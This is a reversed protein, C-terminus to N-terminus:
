GNFTLRKWTAADVIGSEDLKLRKQAAKVKVETQDDYSGTEDAKVARQIARIAAEDKAGHSHSTRSVFPRSFYHGQALPFKPAAKKAPAAKEIEAM